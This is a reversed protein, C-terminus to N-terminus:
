AAHSSEVPIAALSFAQSDITHLMLFDTSRIASLVQEHTPTEHEAISARLVDHCAHLWAVITRLGRGQYSIWNGFVRAALYRAVARELDLPLPGYRHSHRGPTEKALSGVVAFGAHVDWGVDVLAEAGPSDGRGNTAAADFAQRVANALPGDSPTWGRVRETAAGLVDLARAADRAGAFTDVAAAEWASYGELDTLMGPRLLPPLADRADMGEVPETITLKGAAHVVLPPVDEFLLSAATPCYHSMAILTGRGDRLIVRPYHRCSVPM